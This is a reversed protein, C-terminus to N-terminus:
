LSHALEPRAAPRALDAEEFLLARELDLEVVALGELVGGFIQADFAWRGLHHAMPGALLLDDGLAALDANELDLRNAVVRQADLEVVQVVGPDVGPVVQAMEALVVVLDPGRIELVELLAAQRAIRLPPLDARARASTHLSHSKVVSGRPRRRPPRP